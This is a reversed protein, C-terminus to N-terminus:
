ILNYVEYESDISPIIKFLRKSFLRNNDCIILLNGTYIYSRLYELLRSICELDIEKINNINIVINKLGIDEIIKNLEKIFKYYSNSTIKGSLRVFFFGRRFEYEINLM